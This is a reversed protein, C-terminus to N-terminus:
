STILLKVEGKCIVDSDNTNVVFRWVSCDVTQLEWDVVGCVGRSTCMTVMEICVRVWLHEGTDLNHRFWKDNSVLRRACCDVTQLECLWSCWLCGPVHVDNVLERCVRVEIHKTVWLGWQLRPLMWKSNNYAYGRASCAVTKKVWVCDVVGWPTCMTM